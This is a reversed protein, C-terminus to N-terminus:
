RKRHRSSRDRSRSRSRDRNRSRSYDRRTGSSRYNPSRSRRNSFERRRPPSNNRTQQKAYSVTVQVKLVSVPKRSVSELCDDRDSKKFHSFNMFHSHSSSKIREIKLKEFKEYRVFAFGRTRGTDHDKPIWVDGIKGWKDFVDKLDLDTVDEPLDGVRVSFLESSHVKRKPPPSDKM